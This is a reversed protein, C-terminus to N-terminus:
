SASKRRPRARKSPEGTRTRAATPVLAFTLAYLRGDPRARKAGIIDLSQLMRRNVAAVESRTLRGKIRSIWLERDPGTVRAGGSALSRQFDRATLRLLAAATRRMDAVFASSRLDYHIRVFKAPTAYHSEFRRGVKRREVEVLLGVKQLARVHHYLSHPSRGLALAVERVPCPGLGQFGDLIEQRAPSALARLQAPERIWYVGRSTAM